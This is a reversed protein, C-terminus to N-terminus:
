QDDNEGKVDDLRVTEAALAGAARARLRLADAREGNQKSTADAVSWPAPVTTAACSFCWGSSFGRRRGNVRRTLNLSRRSALVRGDYSPGDTSRGGTISPRSSPWGIRSNCVTRSFARFQSWPPNTIIWDVRQTWELFDSGHDIECSLVRGFPRLARVFAGSGACPELMTGSPQLRQVLTEALRPPTM